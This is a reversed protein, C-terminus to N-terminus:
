IKGRLLQSLLQRVGYGSIMETLKMRRSIVVYVLLSVVIGVYPLVVVMPHHVYVMAYKVLVLVGNMCLASLGTRFLILGMRKFRLTQKYHIKLLGLFLVVGMMLMTSLLIGEEGISSVFFHVTLAKTLLGVISYVILELYKKMRYLYLMVFYGMAVLLACVGSYRILIIDSIGQMSPMTCGEWIIMAVPILLYIGIMFYREFSRGKMQQMCYGFADTRVSTFCASMLLIIPWVLRMLLSLQNQALIIDLWFIAYLFLPLFGAGTGQTMLQKRLVGRKVPKKMQMRAKMLFLEYQNRYLLFLSLIMVIQLLPYGISLYLLKQTPDVVFFISYSYLIATVLITVLTHIKVIKTHNSAQLTTRLLHIQPQIFLFLFLTHFITQFPQQYQPTISQVLLPKFLLLIISFLLTTLLLFKHSERITLLTSRADKEQIFRAICTKVPVTIGWEILCLTTLISLSLIGTIVQYETNMGQLFFYYVLVGISGTLCTFLRSHIILPQKNKM